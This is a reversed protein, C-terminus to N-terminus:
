NDKNMSAIPTVGNAKNSTIEVLDPLVGSELYRPLFTRMHAPLPYADDLGFGALLLARSFGDSERKKDAADALKEALSQPVVVVGDEDALVYDGPEVLVGGCQIACDAEWPRLRSMFVEPSASRAFVAGDGAVDRVAAIDRVAGDVVVLSVRRSFIRTLMMDGLVAHTDVAMADIVLAEDAEITDYLGRNIPGNAPRKLDERDPLMRLTRARAVKTGRFSFQPRIGHMVTRTVGLHRLLDAADSTAVAELRQALPRFDHVM